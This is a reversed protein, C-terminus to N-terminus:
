EGIELNEYIVELRANSFIPSYEINKKTKLWRQYRKIYLLKNRKRKSIKKIIVLVLCAVVSLVILSIAWIIFVLVVKANQLKYSLRKLIELAIANIGLLWISMDIIYEILQLRQKYKKMPEDQSLFDKELAIKENKLLNEYSKFVKEEGISEGTKTPVVEARKVEQSEQQKYSLKAGCHICVELSDSVKKKCEECIILAM